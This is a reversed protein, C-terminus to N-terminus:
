DVSPAGVANAVSRPPTIMGRVGIMICTRPSASEVELERYAHLTLVIVGLALALPFMYPACTRAPVHSVVDLGVLAMWVPLSGLFPSFIANRHM